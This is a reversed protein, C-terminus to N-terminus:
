WVKKSVVLKEDEDYESPHLACEIELYRPLTNRRTTRSFVYSNIMGDKRMLFRLRFYTYLDRVTIFEMQTQKQTSLPNSLLQKAM